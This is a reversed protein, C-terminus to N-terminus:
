LHSMLPKLLVNILNRSISSFQLVRSAFYMLPVVPINSLVSCVLFLRCVYYLFKYFTFGFFTIFLSIFLDNTLLPVVEFTEQVCIGSTGLPLHPLLCSFYCHEIIVLNSSLLCSFNLAKLYLLCLCVIDICM